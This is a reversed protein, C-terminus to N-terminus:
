CSSPSALHYSRLGSCSNIFLCCLPLIEIMSVKKVVPLVFPQLEETRYAGVGLNLKKPDQCARFAESVGAWTDMDLNQQLEDNEPNIKAAHWMTLLAPVCCGSAM